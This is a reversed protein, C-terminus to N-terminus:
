EGKMYKKFDEFMDSKVKFWDRSMKGNPLIYKDNIIYENVHNSLWDVAKEIFDDTITVDEKAKLGLEFFRKATYAVDKKILEINTTPFKVDLCERIHDQIEKELDVEKVEITDIFSILECMVLKEQEFSHVLKDNRNHHYKLYAEANKIYKRIEEVLISKDIYQTM